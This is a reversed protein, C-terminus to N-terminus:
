LYIEVKGGDAEEVEVLPMGRHFRRVKNIEKVLLPLDGPKLPWIERPVYKQTAKDAIQATLGNLLLRTPFWIYLNREESRIRIKM